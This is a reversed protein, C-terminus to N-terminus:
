DGNIQELAAAASDRQKGDPSRFRCVDAFNSHPSQIAANYDQSFPWSM